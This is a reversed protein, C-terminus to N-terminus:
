RWWPRSRFKAVEAAPHILEGAHDSLHDLHECLWVGYYSGISSDVVGAATLSPAELELGAPHNPKGVQEALQEYWSALTATRRELVARAADRGTADGPMEAVA